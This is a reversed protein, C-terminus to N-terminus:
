LLSLLFLDSSEPYLISYGRVQMKKMAINGSGESKGAGAASITMKKLRANGTSVSEGAGAASVSMKRLRIGGTVVSEGAGAASVSMKKLRIGGSFQAEEEQIGLIQMKKMALGGSGASEGAGTGAPSMKKLRIGGSASSEGAGASSLTMKKLSAGGSFIAEEEQSGLVSMKKLRAGGSAVSEGAGTASLSMKKLRAGGSAASEGAGAASVFMKKLRAGGSAASEGAVTASLSMKKLRAGGSAASEGAGAASVSMKKLRAGGSAASEGTIAGSVTMKKMGIVVAAYSVEGPGGAGSVSMKKLSAGGTAASEGAGTASLSMKKLRAGGSAVSEGVGAASLYMKKLRTGGSAVSEGAGTGSLSMKKLSLGGSAVSEGAGTGSLSMKKLSAGGSVDIPSSGLVSMKKMAISGSVVSEGAGSASVSMKKLRAGGTAVSEDVLVGEDTLVELVSKVPISNNACWTLCNGLDLDIPSYGEHTIYILWSRHGAAEQAWVVDGALTTDTPIANRCMRVTQWGDTGAGTPPLSECGTPPTLLNGDGLHSMYLGAADVIGAATDDWAGEPYSFSTPASFGQAIIDSQCEDIEAEWTASDSAWVYHDATHNAMDHGDAALSQIEAWTMINFTQGPAPHQGVWNSNLYFTAHKGASAFVSQLNTQTERGDDLVFTVVVENLAAYERVALAVYARDDSTAYTFGVNRAGQGPTTEYCTTCTYSGLDNSADVTSGTAAALINNGGSYGAAFRQSNVGTSGDSVSRAAFTGNEEQILKGVAQTDAGATVTYCAAWMQTANNTRSVVVSKAGTPIGSGLFYTRVTGPETATDNAEANTALPVTTGGYTVGTDQATASISFVFILVGRPTGVPTHTWTFSSQNTSSSGTAHSQSVADRAVSM